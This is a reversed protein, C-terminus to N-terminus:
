LDEKTLIPLDKPQTGRFIEPVGRVIVKGKNDREIRYNPNYSDELINGVVTPFYWCAIIDGGNTGVDLMDFGRIIVNKYGNICACPSGHKYEPDVLLHDLATYNKYEEHSIGRNMGKFDQIKFDIGKSLWYRKHDVILDRYRKILLEKVYVPFGMQKALLVNEKFKKQLVLSNDLFGRHYTFGIRNFRKSFPELRKIILKDCIGNSLIDFREKDMSSLISFVDEVNENCFPEGGYLHMIIDTANLHKDRWKKYVEFTFTRKERWKNVGVKEDIYNYFESNFCYSCRLNCNFSIPFQIYYKM